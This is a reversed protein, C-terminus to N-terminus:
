SVAVTSGSKLSFIVPGLIKANSTFVLNQDSLITFLRGGFLDANNIVFQDGITPNKVDLEGGFMTLKGAISGNTKTTLRSGDLLTANQIVGSRIVEVQGSARLDNVGSNTVVKCGKSCRIEDFGSVSALINDNTIGGPATVQTLGPGLILRNCQGAYMEFNSPPGHFMLRDLKGSSLGGVKVRSSANIVHIDRFTGRINIEAQNNDIVLREAMIQLPAATTGIRGSFSKGIRFEKLSTSPQDVNTLIDVSSGVVYVSSGDAPAGNTYNGSLTYSTSSGGTWVTVKPTTAAAANSNTNKFVPLPM